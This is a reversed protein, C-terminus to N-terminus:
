LHSIKNGFYNKSDIAIKLLGRKLQYDISLKYIIIISFLCFIFKIVFFTQSDLFILDVTLILSCLFYIIFLYIIKKNEFKINSTIKVFYIYLATLFGLLNQLFFNKFIIKRFKKQSKKM